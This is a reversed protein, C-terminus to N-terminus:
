DMKLQQELKAAEAELQARRQPSLSPDALQRKLALLRQEARYDQCAVQPKSPM